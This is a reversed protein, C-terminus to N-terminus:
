TSFIKGVLYDKRNETILLNLFENEPINRGSIKVRIYNSSYGFHGSPTRKESLVELTRGLFANRFNDALDEAITKLETARKRIIGPEIHNTSHASKTESRASFPFIHMRLFGARKCLEITDIFDGDTESPFGVIVDTTIGIEPVKSKIKEILKYYEEASYRRGMTSLIRSSGSQLPIHLHKCLVNNDAILDVLQGTIFNPEVSSLRLRIGNCLPILKELLGALDIGNENEKGYCGLNTGTIVVEKVGNSIFRRLEGNIENINRSRVKGRVYPVKCYSCYEECGDEVKLFARTHGEFFSVREPEYEKQGSINTVSVYTNGEEKYKEECNQPPIIPPTNTEPEATKTEELHRIIDLKDYNGLVHTVGPIDAIEGPSSQAYCGTVVVNKNKKVALRIAKRCKSDAVSTVTCTNIVYVDAASEFAVEEYGNRLFQERLFQTDYQNVKCGLTYFAVKKVKFDCRWDHINPTKWGRCSVPCDPIDTEYVISM